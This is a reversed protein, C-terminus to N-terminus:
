ATHQQEERQQQVTEGAQKHAVYLICFGILGQLGQKLDQSLSSVFFHAILVTLLAACLYYLSYIGFTKLMAVGLNFYGFLTDSYCM